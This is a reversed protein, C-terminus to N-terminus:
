LLLTRNVTVIASRSTSANFVSNAIDPFTIESESESNFTFGSEFHSLLNSQSPHSKRYITYNHRQPESMRERFAMPLIQADGYSPLFSLQNVASKESM